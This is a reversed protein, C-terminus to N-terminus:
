KKEGSKLRSVKGTFLDFFFIEEFGSEVNEVLQSLKDEAGVVADESYIVLIYKRLLKRSYLRLLKEEKRSVADTIERSISNEATIRTLEMGVRNHRSMVLIFDPSESRILRGRSYEPVKARFLSVVLFEEDKQKM